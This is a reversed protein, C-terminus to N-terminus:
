HLSSRTREYTTQVPPKQITGEFRAVGPDAAPASADAGVRPAASGGSVLDTPPYGTSPYRPPYVMTPDGGGYPAAAQRRAAAAARATETALTPGQLAALAAYDQYDLWLSAQDPTSPRSTGFGGPSTHGQSPSAGAPRGGDAIAMPRNAATPPQHGGYGTAPARGAELSAHYTTPMAPPNPSSLGSFQGIVDLPEEPRTGPQWAPAENRTRDWLPAEAAKEPSVEARPPSAQASQTTEDKKGEKGRSFQHVATIVAVGLLVAMGGFLVRKSTSSNFLGRQGGSPSTERRILPDVTALSPIRALLKPAARRRSVGTASTSTRRRSRGKTPARRAGKEPPDIPQYDRM